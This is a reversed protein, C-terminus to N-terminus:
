KPTSFTFVTNIKYRLPFIHPDEEACTMHISSKEIFNPKGGGGRPERSKVEGGGGGSEMYMYAYTYRVLYM